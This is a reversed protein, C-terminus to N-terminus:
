HRESSLDFSRDSPINGRITETFSDFALAETRTEIESVPHDTWNIGYGLNYAVEIFIGFSYVGGVLKSRAVV